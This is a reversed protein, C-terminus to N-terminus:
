WLRKSAQHRKSRRLVRGAKKLTGGVITVRTKFSVTKGAQPGRRVTFTVPNPHKGIPTEREMKRIGDGVAQNLIKKDIESIEGLEAELEKRFQDIAAANRRYNSSSM